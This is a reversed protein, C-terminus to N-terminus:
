VKPEEIGQHLAAARAVLEPSASAYGFLREPALRAILRRDAPTDVIAHSPQASDRRETKPVPRGQGDTIVAVWPTKAHSSRQVVLGYEGSALRVFEGPPYLGFIKVVATSIPGGKDERYLQRIAEQSSLPARLVRPSIKAMFVDAVRLAVAIDAVETLGQPYGSGDAREHHQAVAALWDADSVGAQQLLAVAKQPHAQIAARQRDRMPVDQTAMEGQLDHIGVNMTLAAKALSRVRAEPWGLQRGLLLGVTATHIAHLYGYYFLKVGEQRLCRYLAIEPNSALLAELHRLFGDLQGPFDVQVDLTDLLRKLVVTAQNWLEFLNPAALVDRARETKVQALAAAKIEEVDVFAGRELLADLQEESAVVHGKSLLLRGHADRVNWPLPRELEVKARPLPLMKV